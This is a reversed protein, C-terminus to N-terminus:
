GNTGRIESLWQDADGVGAWKPTARKILRALYQEKYTPDFPTLELLHLSAMDIAGSKINQRGIARVMFYKYLVNDERDQLFEKETSITILGNDKTQIHINTKDKGGANVLMGYFYFEADAWLNENIHYSTKNSIILSPSGDGPRGFEYTFGNRIASKQVEQIARATNIELGDLSGTQQVLSVIALFTTASQLTTKFVNRVSGTELSYSIPARSIKQNPYLLTEVVDFLSKIERIDFNDPSLPENGLRGVVRIEIKGSDDMKKWIRYDSQLSLL